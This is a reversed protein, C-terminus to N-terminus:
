RTGGAQLYLQKYLWVVQEAVGIDCSLDQSPLVVESVPITGEVV